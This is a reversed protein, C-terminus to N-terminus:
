ELQVLETGGLGWKRKRLGLRIVTTERPTIAVLDIHIKKDIKDVFRDNYDGEYTNAIQITCRHKGIPAVVRMPHPTFDNKLVTEVGKHIVKDTVSDTYTWAIEGNVMLVQDIANAREHGQRDKDRHVSIRSTLEFKDFYVLLTGPADSVQEVEPPSTPTVREVGEVFDVSVVESRAVKLRSGFTTEITLTDRVLEVVRGKIRSGDKLYIVDGMALVPFGILAFVLIFRKFRM